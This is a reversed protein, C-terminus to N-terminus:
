MRLLINTRRFLMPPFAAPEVSLTIAITDIVTITETLISFVLEAGITVVEAITVSDTIAGEPPIELTGLALRVDEAVTITL